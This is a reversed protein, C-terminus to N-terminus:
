TGMMHATRSGAPTDSVHSCKPRRPSLVTQYLLSTGSWGGPDVPAMTPRSVSSARSAAKTSAGPPGAPHQHHEAVRAHALARQQRVRGVPGAGSAQPHQRGGAPLRLRAQGERAKMLQQGRHEARRRAKGGRCACASSPASPRVAAGAAASGSTVPIAASVRSDSTDSDAGTRATMSSAWQSSRLERSTSAKTPVRSSASRTEQQEPRLPCAGGAPKSRPKGSSRSSGSGRHRVRAPQEVRLGPRGSPPGPALHSAWAAPLGIASISSAFTIAASGAAPRRQVASGSGGPSRSAATM